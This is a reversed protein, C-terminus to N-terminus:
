RWPSRAWDRSAVHNRSLDLSRGIMLQTVEDEDTDATELTGRYQGDRLLTIRDSIKFIEEMRHSIYVIGVGRRRSIREIVDFLVVKRPM